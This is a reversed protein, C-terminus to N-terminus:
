GAVVVIVLLGDASVLIAVVVVRVFVSGAGPIGSIGIGEPRCM